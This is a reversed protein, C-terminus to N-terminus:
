STLMEFFQHVIARGGFEEKQTILGENLYRGNEETSIGFDFYRKYKYKETILFNFILDLASLKKGEESSAIYQAHVLSNYEYIVIGALIQEDKYSCFLKINDPFYSALMSIESLSHVPKTGYKAELVQSLIDFFNKFDRTEKVILGSSLAKKIGRRRRESFNPTTSLDICTSVDCRILKADNYVLAYIDEQAPASHYIYPIAKYILKAIDNQHLYGKIAQFIKLMLSTKMKYDSIIGGFTLGSHSYLMREKENAPLLAILMDEQYVLLSHDTFRDSHYDMYSRNFMFLSNKANSVFSNWV